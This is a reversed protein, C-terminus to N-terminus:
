EATTAGIRWVHNTCRKTDFSILFSFSFFSLFIFEDFLIYNHPMLKLIMAYMRVMEQARKGIFAMVRVSLQMMEVNKQDDDDDM